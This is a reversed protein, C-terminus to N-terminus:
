EYIIRNLKEIVSNTDVLVEENTFRVVTFGEQELYSSRILDQEAVCEDTHYGGDIEIVLKKSLCVFDVIYDGIPHQRRFRVGFSKAKLINWMVTEAQTPNKRNNKALERLLEYNGTVSTIYKYMITEKRIGQM